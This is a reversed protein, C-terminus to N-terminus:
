PLLPTEPPLGPLTRAWVAVRVSAAGSALLARACAEVTAGSTMVDDVLLVRAGRLERRALFATQSTARRTGARLRKSSLRSAVRLRLARPAHPLGLRAAVRRSLECAPSFGRRLNMWPHSPAPVVLTCNGHWSSVELAQALQVALPGFLERRGGSKARLLFRRARGDYIVAGRVGEVPPPHIVCSACRGRAPGLLDTQPPRPLGCGRCLPPRLQAFGCWCEPCAGLFQLRGLTRDCGFCLTPLAFALLPYGLARHLRRACRM